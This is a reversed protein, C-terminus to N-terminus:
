TTVTTTGSPFKPVVVRTSVNSAPRANTPILEIVVLLPTTALAPVYAAIAPAALKVPLPWVM